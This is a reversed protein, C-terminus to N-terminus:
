RMSVDGPLSHIALSGSTRWGCPDALSLARRRSRSRRRNGADCHGCTTRVEGASRQRQVVSRDRNRMRLGNTTGFRDGDPHIGSLM